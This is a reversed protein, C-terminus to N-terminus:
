QESRICRVPSRVRSPLKPASDRRGTLINNLNRYSNPIPLPACAGGNHSSNTSRVSSVITTKRGNVQNRQRPPCLTNSSNIAMKQMGHLSIIMEEDFPTTTTITTSITSTDFDDDNFSQQCPRHQNLKPPRAPVDPDSNSSRSRSVVLRGSESFTQSNTSNRRRQKNVQQHQELAGPLYKSRGQQATRQDPSVYSKNGKSDSSLECLRITASSISPSGLMHFSNQFGIDAHRQDTESLDDLLMEDPTSVNWLSSYDAFSNTLSSRRSSGGMRPSRMLSSIGGTLSGRRNMGGPMSGRRTTVQTETSISSERPCSLPEHVTRRYSITGEGVGDFLSRRHAPSITLSSSQASSAVNIYEMPGHSNQFHKKTDFGDHDDYFSDPDYIDEYDDRELLDNLATGVEM